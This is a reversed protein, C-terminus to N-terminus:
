IEVNEFCRLWIVEVPLKVLANSVRSWAILCPFILFMWFSLAKMERQLHEHEVWIDSVTLQFGRSSLVSFLSVLPGMVVIVFLLLYTCLQGSWRSDVAFFSIGKIKTLATCAEVMKWGIFRKSMRHFMRSLTYIGIELLSSPFISVTLEKSGYNSHPTTSWECEDRKRDM